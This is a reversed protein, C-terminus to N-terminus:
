RQWIKSNTWIHAFMICDPHPGVKTIAGSDRLSDRVVRCSKLYITNVKAQENGGGIQSQKKAFQTSDSPSPIQRRANFQYTYFLLHVCIKNPSVKECQRQIKKGMNHKDDYDFSFFQINQFKVNLQINSPKSQSFQAPALVGYLVNIKWATIRWDIQSIWEM